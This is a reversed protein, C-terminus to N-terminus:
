ATELDPQLLLQSTSTATANNRRLYLSSIWALLMNNTGTVQKYVGIRLFVTADVFAGAETAKNGGSLNLKALM